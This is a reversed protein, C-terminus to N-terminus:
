LCFADYDTKEGTTSDLSLKVSIVNNMDGGLVITEVHSQHHSESLNYFRRHKEPSSEGPRDFCM